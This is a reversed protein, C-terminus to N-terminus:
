DEVPRLPAVIELALRDGVRGPAALAQVQDGIHLAVPRDVREDLRIVDGPALEAIAEVPIEAHGLTAAVVLDVTELVRRLDPEGAPATGAQDGGSAPAPGLEGLVPGLSAYPYCVALRGTAGAIDVEFALVAAVDTPDAFKLFEPGLATAAIAADLRAVRRWAEELAPLIEAVIRDILEAEIPTPEPRGPRMEGSGGLLRDLLAYALDLDLDVIFPGGLAASRVVALETPLRLERLHEAVMIQGAAVLRAGITTGLRTSLSAAMIRAADDHISRLTRLQERALKDPRRFDVVRVDRPAAAATARQGPAGGSVAMSGAPRTADLDPQSLM